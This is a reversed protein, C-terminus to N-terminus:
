GAEGHHPRRRGTGGGARRHEGKPRWRGLTQGAEPPPRKTGSRTLSRRCRRTLKSQRSSSRRGSIAPTQRVVMNRSKARMWAGITGHKDPSHTETPPRNRAFFGDGGGEEALEMWIEDRHRGDLLQNEYLLLANGAPGPGSRGARDYRTEDRGAGGAAEGPVVPRHPPSPWHTKGHLEHKTM